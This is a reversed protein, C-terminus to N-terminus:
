ISFNKKTLNYVIEEAKITATESIKEEFDQHHHKDETADRFPITILYDFKKRTDLQVNDIYDYWKRILKIMPLYTPSMPTLESLDQVTETHIEITDKSNYFTMDSVYRENKISPLQQITKELESLIKDSLVYNFVIDKLKKRDHSELQHIPIVSLKDYWESEVFNRYYPYFHQITTLQMGRIKHWTVFFKIQNEIYDKIRKQIKKNKIFQFLFKFYSDFAFVKGIPVGIYLVALMGKISLFFVKENRHSSKTRRQKEVLYESTILGPNKKTGQIKNKIAKRGFRYNPYRFAIESLEYVHTPNSALIELIKKEEGTLVFLKFDSLTM